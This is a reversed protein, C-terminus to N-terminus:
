TASDSWLLCDMGPEKQATGRGEKINDTRTVLEYKTEVYTPLCNM